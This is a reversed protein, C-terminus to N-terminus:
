RRTRTPQGLISWVRQMRTTYNYELQGCRLEQGPLHVVARQDIGRVTLTTGPLDIDLRDCRGRIDQWGFDVNGNCIIRQVVGDPDRLMTMAAADIRQGDPDIMGDELLARAHVPGLYRIQTPEVEVRGECMLRVPAGGMPGGPSTGARDERIVLEPHVGDLPVLSLFQREDQNFFHIRRARARLHRNNHDLSSFSAPKGLLRGLGMGPEISDLRLALEDGHGEGRSTKGGRQLTYRLEVAGRAFLRGRGSPGLAERAPGGPLRRAFESLVPASGIHPLLEIEDGALDLDLGQEEDRMALSAQGTAHLHVARPGYQRVEIAKARLKGRSEHEVEALDGYLRYVDPEPYRIDQARGLILGEDSLYRLLCDRGQARISRVAGAPGFRVRLRGVQWLRDGTGPLSLEIKDEASVLELQQPNEDAAHLTCPGTGLLDFDRDQTSGGKRHRFTYRHAADRGLRLERILSPKDRPGTSRQRLVFGQNGTGSLEPSFVEVAGQGRLWVDDQLAPDECRLLVMGEASRLLIQDEPLEYESPGICTILQDLGGALATRPMGFGGLLQHHQLGLRILQVEGECRFKVTRGKHTQQGRPSLKGLGTARLGLVEEGHGPLVQLQGCTFSTTTDARVQVPSGHLRLDLVQAAEVKITKDKQASRLSLKGVLAEAEVELTEPQQKSEAERVGSLRVADRMTLAAVRQRDDSIVLLPGESRAILDGRTFTPEAFVEFRLRGRTALSVSGDADRETPLLVDMGKGRIEFGGEGPRWIRVPVRRDPTWLHMENETNLALARQMEIAAQRLGGREAGQYSLGWFEMLKDESPQMVGQDSDQSLEVRARDATMVGAPEARAAAGAGVIEFFRIEVGIFVVKNNPETRSDRNTWRYVPLLRIDGSPLTIQRNRDYSSAGRVGLSLPADSKGTGVMLRPDQNAPQPRTVAAGQESGRGTAQTEGLGGMAYLVLFGGVLLAVFLLARLIM